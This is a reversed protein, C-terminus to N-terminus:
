YFSGRQVKVNGGFAQPSKTQKPMQYPQLKPMPTYSSQLTKPSVVVQNTRQQNQTSASSNNQFSAPAPSLLRAGRAYDYTAPAFSAATKIRGPVSFKPIGKGQIAKGATSAGKSIMSTGIPSRILEEAIFGGVAGPLGKAVAGVTAAGMKTFNIPQRASSRGEADGYLKEINKLISEKKGIERLGPSNQRMTGRLIDRERMFAGVPQGALEAQTQMFKSSPIRKDVAMAIQHLQEPNVYETGGLVGGVTERRAKLTSLQSAAVDDASNMVQKELRRIASDYANMLDSVRISQGPIARVASGYQQGLDSALEGASASDRSFLAPNEQYFQLPTKNSSKIQSVIKKTLKPNGSGQLVYEDGFKELSKGFNGVRKYAIGTAKGAGKAMLSFPDTFSAAKTFANGARTLGAVKSVTGAGRLAGGVGSAVGAVDLAAGVPDNYLTNGIKDLSGYRDKYFNGVARANDEYQTGLLQTPDLYQAVGAGLKLLNAGTNKEVNPNFTNVVAGMLDGATRAGSKVVNSAFGGISKKQPSQVGRMNMYQGIQQDTFGAQKAANYNFAM